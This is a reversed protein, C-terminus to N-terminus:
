LGKNYQIENDPLNYLLFPSNFPLEDAGSLYTKDDPHKVGLPVKFTGNSLASLRLMDLYRNAEGLMERGREDIIEQIIANQDTSTFVPIGARKRILNLEILADTLNNKRALIEARMLHFEAARYLPYYMASTSMKNQWRGTTKKTTLLTFRKDVLTDGKGMLNIYNKGLPFLEKASSIGAQGVPVTNQMFGWKDQRTMRFASVGDIGFIIESVRAADTSKWGWDIFPSASVKTYLSKIDTALPYKTSGTASVPGLLENVQLLASDFDNKQFYVKALTAVAFDKRMRARFGVPHIKDDYAEPLTAIARKLDKIIYDYMEKVTNRRAPIDNLSLIPKDRFIAAPSNLTSAHYQPGILLTMQWNCLARLACSEGILRNGNTLTAPDAATMGQDISEIITNAPHITLNNWQLIYRVQASNLSSYIHSYAEYGGSTVATARKAENISYFDGNMEIIEVFVGMGAPAFIGTYAGNMLTELDRTSTRLSNIDQTTEPKIEDVWNTCGQIAGLLILSFLIKYYVKM